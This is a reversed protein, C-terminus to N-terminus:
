VTIDVEYGTFKRINMVGTDLILYQGKIGQLVGSVEPTKDLSHSMIKEPHKELPYRFTQMMPNDIIGIDEDGYTEILDMLPLEAQMLVQEWAAVLDPPEPSERLMTRWQTKDALFAKLAVEVQGVLFRNSATMVACAAVAGQDIWRSPCNKEQTIGVKLGSTYSLYLIQSAHCHRHAWDNEPCCGEMVRCREPHIVCLNCEQLKRYCPYCYGQQFLKKSPRACQTCFRRGTDAITITQGIWDNVRLDGQETQLTYQVPDKAESRMKSILLREKM